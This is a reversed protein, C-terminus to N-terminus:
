YESPLQAEEARTEQLCLIDPTAEALWDLLGKRHAARIGNDNWSLLSIAQM